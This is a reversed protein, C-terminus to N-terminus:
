VFASMDAESSQRLAQSEGVNGSPLVLELM